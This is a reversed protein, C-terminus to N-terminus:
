NALGEKKKLFYRYRGYCNQCLGKAYHSNKSKCIICNSLYNRSWPKLIPSYAKLKKSKESLHLEHHCKICVPLLNSKENNQSNKDKHHILSAEEYCITCGKQILREYLNALSKKQRKFKPRYQKISSLTKYGTLIQHIRQRSVNTIRAIKSYNHGKKNLLFVLKKDIM